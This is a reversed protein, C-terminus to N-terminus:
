AERHFVAAVIDEGEAGMGHDEEPDEESLLARLAMGVEAVRRETLFGALEGM